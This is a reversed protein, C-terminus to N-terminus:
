PELWAAIDALLAAPQDASVLHGSQDYRPFRLERVMADPANDDPQYEIRIWGPREVGARPESDHTVSAVLDDYTAFTLPIAPAWVRADFAANTVFTRVSRMASLLKGGYDPGWALENALNVWLRFYADDPRLAGFTAVLGASAKLDPCDIAEDLRVADQRAGPLLWAITSLDVGTAASLQTPEILASTAPAFCHDSWPPQDCHYVEHETDLCDAFPELTAQIDLQLQRAVVPQILVLHGFQAAVTATDIQKTPAFHGEISDALAPDYHRASEERLLEHNLLLDFLAAARVGGYSEAVVVVPSRRLALHRALFRLLVRAVDAADLEPVFDASPLKTAATGSARAYSFGAHRADVYLLNFLKTWSDSNPKASGDVLSLRATNHAFLGATTAFNPGGNFLLALPKDAPAEDAPQFVYFLRAAELCREQGMFRPCAPEIEFFGVEPGLGVATGDPSVATAGDCSWLEDVCLCGGCASEIKPNDPSCGSLWVATLLTCLLTLQRRHRAVSDRSSQM